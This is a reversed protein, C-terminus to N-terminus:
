ACARVFLVGRIALQALEALGSGSRLYMNGECVIWAIRTLSCVSRTLSVYRTGAILFVFRLCSSTAGLMVKM